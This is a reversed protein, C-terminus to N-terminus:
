KGRHLIECLSEAFCFFQNQAEIWNPRARLDALTGALYNGFVYYKGVVRFDEGFVAVPVLLDFNEAEQGDVAVISPENGDETELRLTKVLAKLHGADVKRGNETHSFAIKGDPGLVLVEDIRVKESRDIVANLASIQRHFYPLVSTGVKQKGEKQGTMVAEKRFDNSISEVDIRVESTLFRFFAAPFASPAM